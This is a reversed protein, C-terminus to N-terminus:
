ALLLASRGREWGFRAEGSPGEVSAAPVAAPSDDCSLSPPSGPLVLPGWVHSRETASAPAMSSEWRGALHAPCPWVELKGVLFCLTAPRCTFQKWFASARGEALPVTLPFPRGLRLSCKGAERAGVSTVHSTTALPIHPSRTSGLKAGVGAAKEAHKRQETFGAQRRQWSTEGTGVPLAGEKRWRCWPHLAEM